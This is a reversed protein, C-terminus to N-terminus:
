WGKSHSNSLLVYIILDPIKEFPKDDKEKKKIWGKPKTKGFPHIM